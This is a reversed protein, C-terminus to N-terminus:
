RPALVADGVAAEAFVLLHYLPWPLRGVEDSIRATGVERDRPEWLVVDALGTVAVLGALMVDPQGISERITLLRALRMARWAVINADVPRHSIKTRGLRRHEQRQWIGALVLRQAVSAV